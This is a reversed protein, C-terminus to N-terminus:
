VEHFKCTPMIAVTMLVNDIKLNRVILDLAMMKPLHNDQLHNSGVTSLSDAVAFFRKYVM